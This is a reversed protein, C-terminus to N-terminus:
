NKKILIEVIKIGEYNKESQSSNNKFITKNIKKRHSKKEDKM